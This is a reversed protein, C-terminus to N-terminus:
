MVEKIAKAAVKRIEKENLGSDVDEILSAKLEAYVRVKGRGAPKEILFRLQAKKGVDAGM